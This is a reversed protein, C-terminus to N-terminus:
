EPPPKPPSFCDPCSRNPPRILFKRAGNFIISNFFFRDCSFFFLSVDTDDVGEVDVVVDCELEIYIEVVDAGEVIDKGNVGGECGDITKGNVGGECEFKKKGIVGGKFGIITRGNVGGKCDIM